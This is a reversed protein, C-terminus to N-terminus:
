CPAASGTVREGTVHVVVAGAPSRALTGSELYAVPWLSLEALHHLRAVIPGTVPRAAQRRFWEEQAVYSLIDKLQGAPHMSYSRDRIAIGHKPLEDDVDRLRFRQVHQGHRQKLDGGFDLKWLLWHLTGVQGECPILGHFLGGPALVRALENLATCPNEVHELVDFLVVMDFSADPYPLHSLSGVDYTVGDDYTRARRIAAESVDAGYAVLDPRLRKITRIFRGAGCGAELIRGGRGDIARLARRLALNGRRVEAEGWIKTETAM